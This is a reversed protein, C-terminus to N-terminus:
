HFYLRVAAYIAMASADFKVLGFVWLTGNIAILTTNMNRPLM